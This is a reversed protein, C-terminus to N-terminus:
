PAPTHRAVYVIADGYRRERIPELSNPWPPVTDRAAREIVVTAGPNLWAAALEEFVTALEGDDLGFPPDALALDFRRAPPTALVNAATGRVVRARDTRLGAINGRLIGAARQDAEVFLVEDAGRSLAELGLAGSGAYLDLVAAGDVADAHELSAFVAERARETTPRTGKPPVRLRRGGYSGAVIRTM